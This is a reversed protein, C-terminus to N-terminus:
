DFLLSLFLSFSLMFYRNVNIDITYEDDSYLDYIYIYVIRPSQVNMWEYTHTHMGEYVPFRSAIQCRYASRGEMKYECASDLPTGVGGGCHELEFPPMPMPMPM